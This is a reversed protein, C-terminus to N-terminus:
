RSLMDVLFHDLGTTPQWGLEQRAKTSDAGIALPDSPRILRPDVVVALAGSSEVHASWATPDPSNRDWLLAFGRLAFARDVLEWVAHMRGSSLVYDRYSSGTDPELATGSVEARVRIQRCIRIMGEVYEPAFGWDRQAALNGVLLPHPPEHGAVTAEQLLRVHDVVKRTLFAAPRRRSEHNSLIGCAIRLDFARRYGDCLLHAASKAAAYPSQPLFQSAEDLVVTEGPLSGFMDTSSAQYFRTAQSDRRVAELLAQVAHANTRWTDTPDHFSASVSSQGALNYFEDPRVQAVLRAFGEADSMELTHVVLRGAAPLQALDADGGADRITAHVELGESLLRAVLYYGDQGTAGTVIATAPSSATVAPQTAKVGRVV